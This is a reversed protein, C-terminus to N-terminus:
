AARRASGLDGEVFERLLALASEGGGIHELLEARAIFPWCAATGVVGPYSSWAYACPHDALGAEVPNLAIYRVTLLLHADGVIRKPHYRERLV